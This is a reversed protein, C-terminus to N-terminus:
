AANWSLGLSGDLWVGELAQFLGRLTAPPTLKGRPSVCEPFHLAYGLGCGSRRIVTAALEAYHSGFSIAVELTDGHGAIPTDSEIYLGSLSIDLAAVEQHVDGNNITVQLRRYDEPRLQSLKLRFSSRRCASTELHRQLFSMIVSVDATSVLALPAGNNCARFALGNETERITMDGFHLTEM